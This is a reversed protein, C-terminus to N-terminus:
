LDIDHTRLLDGGIGCPSSHQLTQSGAPQSAPRSEPDVVPRFLLEDKMTPLAGLALEPALLLGFLTKSSPASVYRTRTRGEHHNSPLCRAFTQAPAERNVSRSSEPRQSPLPRTDSPTCCCMRLSSCGRAERADITLGGDSTATFLGPGPVNLTISKSPDSLNTLTMKLAGTALTAGNAFTIGYEKNAVVHVGVDFSCSGSITFDAAPIFERTPPDAGATPVLVFLAAMLAFACITLNRM